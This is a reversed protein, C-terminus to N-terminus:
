KAHHVSCHSGPQPFGINQRGQGTKRTRDLEKHASGMGTSEGEVWLSAQGHRSLLAGYLLLGLAFHPASNIKSNQQLIYTPQLVGPPLVPLILAGRLEMRFLANRFMFGAMMHSYLLQAFSDARSSIQVNFFQPPLTGLSGRVTTRMADVVTAPAQAVPRSWPSDTRVGRLAAPEWCRRLCVLGCPHAHPGCAPATVTGSM